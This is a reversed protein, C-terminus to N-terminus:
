FLDIIIIMQFGNPAETVTTSSSLTDRPIVHRDLTVTVTILKAFILSKQRSWAFKPEFIDCGIKVSRL